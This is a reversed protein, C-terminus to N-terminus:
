AAVEARAGAVLKVGERRGIEEVSVIDFDLGGHVVRLGEAPSLGERYRVVFVRRQLAAPQDAARGETGISEMEVRAWTEVVLVWTRSVERSTSTRTEVMREIRILRDMSGAAVM